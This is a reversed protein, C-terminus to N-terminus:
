YPVRVIGFDYDRIYPNSATVGSPLRSTTTMAPTVPVGFTTAYSQDPSMVSDLPTVSPVEPFAGGEMDITYVGKLPYHRYTRHYKDFYEQMTNQSADYNYRSSQVDQDDWLGFYDAQVPLEGNILCQHISTYLMATRHTIPQLVGSAFSASSFPVVQLGYGVTPQPASGVGPPLLDIYLLSYRAIITAGGSGITAVTAGGVANVFLASEPTTGILPSIQMNNNPRNEPDGFPVCGWLLQRKRKLQQHVKFTWSYQTTTPSGTVNTVTAGPNLSGSGGIVNPTPGQDTISAFYGENNGYGPYNPDFNIHHMVQDLYWPFLEMQPWPPAGGITLQQQVASYPAFPSVTASGTTAALILQVPLTITYDIGSCFSPIIPLQQQWVVNAASGGTGGAPVTGIVAWYKEPAIALYQQIAAQAAAQQANATGTGMTSTM